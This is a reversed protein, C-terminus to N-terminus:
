FRMDNGDFSAEAFLMQKIHSDQSSCIDIGSVTAWFKACLGSLGQPPKLNFLL